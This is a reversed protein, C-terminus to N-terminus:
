PTCPVQALIAPGIMEVWPDACAAVPCCLSDLSSALFALYATANIQGPYSAFAYAPVETTGLNFVQVMRILPLICGAFELNIAHTGGGWETLNVAPVYLEGTTYSLTGETVTIDIQQVWYRADSFDPQAQPGTDKIIAAFGAVGVGDDGDAVRQRYMVGHRDVIANMGGIRGHARLNEMAATLWKARIPDGPKIRRLEAQRIVPRM